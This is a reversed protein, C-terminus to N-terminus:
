FDSQIPEGFINTHRPNVPMPRPHCVIPILILTVVIGLTGLCVQGIIYLLTM